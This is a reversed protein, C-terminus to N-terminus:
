IVTCDYNEIRSYEPFKEHLITEIEYWYKKEAEERVDASEFASKRSFANDFRLSTEAKIICFGHENLNWISPDTIETVTVEKADNEHNTRRAGPIHDVSYDTDFAREVKFVESRALYHMETQFM